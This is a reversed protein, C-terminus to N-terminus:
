QLLFGFIAFANVTGGKLPEYLPFGQNENLENGCGKEGM